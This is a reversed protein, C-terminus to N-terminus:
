VASPHARVWHSPDECCSLPKFVGLPGPLLRGRSSLPLVPHSGAAWWLFGPSPCPVTEGLAGRSAGVWGVEPSPTKAEPSHSFVNGSDTAVQRPGLVSVSPGVLDHQERHACAGRKGFAARELRNGASVGGVPGGSPGACLGRPLVFTELFGRAWAVLFCM